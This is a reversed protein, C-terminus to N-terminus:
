LSDEHTEKRGSIMARTLNEKSLFSQTFVGMIHLVILVITVDTSIDHTKQVPTLYLFLKTDGLPGARNEAADLAVGSITLIIMALLLMIIMAGGAPNHGIYHNVKCQLLAKLHRYVAAPSCVFDSFRAYPAGVFGWVIRVIVLGAITYGAYLHLDYEQEQTVYCILFAIVLSWHFIRVLPDWVKITNKM